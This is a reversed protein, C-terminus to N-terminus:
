GTSEREILETELEITKFVPEKGKKLTEIEIFLQDFATEGMQFGPQDITTLSPSIVSSMFWNSFGVVRIDEPVRIGQNRFETLAGIAVLDTNIFIGDIDQHDELLKKANEKGEEFSRDDCQCIYVLSPDFELGHDLLANRYGMFRDISNLPTLAGRFHAIRRCGKEILHRTAEYAAKRDNIIIKSCEVRKSVKDFMVLPTSQDLVQNIHDCQETDNALSIIMGDVRQNLLLQIQKRELENSENSQLIIVLYGKQEARSVIGKIVNSFFHHVIEPIILGITKSENTRLNIALTNPKYNLSKALERVQNKTEIGIDPYDKLAKSVTSVSINLKAAIEKLTVPKM